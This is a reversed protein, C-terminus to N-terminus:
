ASFSSASLDSISAFTGGRRYDRPTKSSAIRTRNRTGAPEALERALPGQESPFPRTCQTRSSLRKPVSCASWELSGGIESDRKRSGLSVLLVRKPGDPAHDWPFPKTFGNGFSLRQGPRFFEVRELVEALVIDPDPAPRRREERRECELAHRCGGRQQAGDLHQALHVALVGGSQRPEPPAGRCRRSASSRCRHAGAGPVPNDSGMHLTGPTPGDDVALFPNLRILFPAIIENGGRMPRPLQFQRSGRKVWGSEQGVFPSWRM